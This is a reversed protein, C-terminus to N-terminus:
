ERRVWDMFLCCGNEFKVEFEAAEERTIYKRGYLKQMDRWVEWPITSFIDWFAVCVGCKAGATYYKELVDKQKATLANYHIRDTDTHKAEFCVAKTSDYVVGMYDPLAHGIFRGTFTGDHYKKLVRFPEPIKEIYAKGQEKYYKCAADICSELYKGAANNRRSIQSRHEGQGVGKSIKNRLLDQEYLSLERSM